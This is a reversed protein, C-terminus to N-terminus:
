ARTIAIVARTPAVLTGESEVTPPIITRVDVSIWPHEDTAIGRITVAIRRADGVDGITVRRGGSCRVGHALAVLGRGLCLVFKRTWVGGRLHRERRTIGRHIERSLVGLRAVPRVREHFRHLRLKGAAPIEAAFDVRNVVVGGMRAAIWRKWASWFNGALPRM